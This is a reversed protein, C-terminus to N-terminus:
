VWALSGPESNKELAHAHLLDIEGAQIEVKEIGGARAKHTAIEGVRREELESEPLWLDLLIVQSGDRDAVRSVGLRDILVTNEPPRLEVRGVSVESIGAEHTTEEVSGPEALHEERV